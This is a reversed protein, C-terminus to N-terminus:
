HGPTVIKFNPLHKSTVTMFALCSKGASDLALLLAGPGTLWHWGGPEM